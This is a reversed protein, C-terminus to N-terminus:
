NRFNRGYFWLKTFMLYLSDSFVKFTTYTFIVSLVRKFEDDAVLVRSSYSVQFNWINWNLNKKFAVRPLLLIWWDWNEAGRLKLYIYAVKGPSRSQANLAKLFTVTLLNETNVRGTM